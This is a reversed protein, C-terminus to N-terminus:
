QAAIARYLRPASAGGGPQSLALRGNGPTTNTVLSTWSTMNSSVQIVYKQDPVGTLRLVFPGNAPGRQISLAPRNNLARALNLRGGTVCKGALAPLPDVTNLVRNIIRWYPDNPYQAWVLAVAGSVIAAAMSTGTLLTYDDDSRDYTSYIGVAPAALDVNTLGYHANAYMGDYPDTGMVAVINSLAFCSPYYPTIDNNIGSNGSAAVVIMGAQQCAQLATFLSSSYISTVFSANIIKAGNTRAYDLCEVAASFAGSGTSDLFRCAMLRAKWAVGTVGNGNNGVAGILGAV